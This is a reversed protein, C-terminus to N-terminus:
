VYFFPLGAKNRSELIFFHLPMLKEATVFFCFIEECFAHPVGGQYVKHDLSLM